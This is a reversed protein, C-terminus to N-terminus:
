ARRGTAAVLEVMLAGVSAVTGAGLILQTVPHSPGLNWFLIAGAIILLSMCLLIIRITKSRRVTDRTIASMIPTGLLNTYDYDLGLRRGHLLMTWPRSHDLPGRLGLSHLNPVRDAICIAVLDGILGKGVATVDFVDHGAFGRITARLQEYGTDAHEWSQVRDLCQQYAECLSGYATAEYHGILPEASRQVLGAATGQPSPESWRYRGESLGVLLARVSEMVARASFPTGGIETVRLFM